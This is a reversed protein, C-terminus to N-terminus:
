ALQGGVQPSPSSPVYRCAPCRRGTSPVFCCYSRSPAGAVAGRRKGTAPRSRASDRRARRAISRGVARADGARNENPSAARGSSARLGAAAAAGSDTFPGAQPCAGVTSHSASFNSDRHRKSALFALAAVVLGVLVPAVVRVPDLHALVAAPAAGCGACPFASLGRSEESPVYGDSPLAACPWAARAPAAASGAARGASSAAASRTSSAIASRRGGLGALDARSPPSALGCGSSTAGACGRRLAAASPAARRLRSCAGRAAAGRSARRASARGVARRWCAASRRCGRWRPRTMLKKTWTQASSRRTWHGSRLWTVWAVATTTTKQKM